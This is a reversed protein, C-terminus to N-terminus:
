DKKNVKFTRKINEKGLHIKVKAERKKDNITNRM